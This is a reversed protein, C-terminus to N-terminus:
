KRSDIYQKTVNYAASVGAGIAGGVLVRDFKFGTMAWTVVAAEVFTVVALIAVKKWNMDVGKHHAAL